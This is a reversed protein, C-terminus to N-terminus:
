FINLLGFPTNIVAPSLIIVKKCCLSPSKLANRVFRFRRVEKFGKEQSQLLESISVRTKPMNSNIGDLEHIWYKRNEFFSPSM